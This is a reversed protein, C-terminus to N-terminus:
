AIREEVVYIVKGEQTLYHLSYPSDFIIKGGGESVIGDYQKGEEGNVVVFWKGGAQAGYAVSRGDPSVILTGVVLSYDLVVPRESVVRKQFM